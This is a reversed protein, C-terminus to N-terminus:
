RNAESLSAVADSLGEDNYAVVCLYEEVFPVSIRIPISNEPGIVNGFPSPTTGRPGEPRWGRFDRNYRFVAANIVDAGPPKVSLDVDNYGNRKKFLAGPRADELAEAPEGDAPLNDILILSLLAM